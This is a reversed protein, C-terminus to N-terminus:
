VIETVVLAGNKYVFKVEKGAYSFGYEKEEDRKYAPRPDDGLAGTLGALQEKKAKSLANHDYDCFDENLLM